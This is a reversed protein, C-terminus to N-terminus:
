EIKWAINISKSIKKVPNKLRSSLDNVAAAALPKALCREQVCVDDGSSYEYNVDDAGIIKQGLAEAIMEAKKRSDEIASQLVHKEMENEDSLEFEMSYEVDSMKKLLEAIREEMQMNAPMKISISKSFRYPANEGYSQRVSFDNLMFDEPKLGLEDHMLQLFQETQNKGNEIVEGSSRGSAKIEFRIVFRDIVFDKEASGRVRITGM